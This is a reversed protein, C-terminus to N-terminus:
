KSVKLVHKSDLIFFSIIISLLKLVEIVNLQVNMDIFTIQMCYMAGIKKCYFSIITSFVFYNSAKKNWIKYRVLVSLLSICKDLGPNIVKLVNNSYSSCRIRHFIIGGM